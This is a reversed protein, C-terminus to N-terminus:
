DRVPVKWEIKGDEETCITISAKGADDYYLIHKISKGILFFKLKNSTEVMESFLDKIEQLEKLAIQKTINKLNSYNSWGAVEIENLSNAGLRLDGVKATQNKKMFEVAIDIKNEM